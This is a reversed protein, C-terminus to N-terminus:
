LSVFTAFNNRKKKTLRATRSRPRNGPAAGTPGKTKGAIAAGELSENALGIATQEPPEATEEM